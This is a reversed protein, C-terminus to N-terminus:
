SVKKLLRCSDQCLPTKIGNRIYIAIFGLFLWWGGAILAWLEGSLIAEMGHEPHNFGFVFAPVMFVALGKFWFAAAPIPVRLWAMDTVRILKWYEDSTHNILLAAYGTDFQVNQMYVVTVRQGERLPIDHGTLQVSVEKGDDTKLWFEHKTVVRSSVHVDRSHGHAGGGGGGSVHTESFKDQSLVEGTYSFFEFEQNGIKLNEM